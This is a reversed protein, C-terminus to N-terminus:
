QGPLITKPSIMLCSEKWSQTPDRSRSREITLIACVDPRDLAGVKLKRKEMVVNLDKGRTGKPLDVNVTVTALDQSWRYPLEAQEKEEKEKAIKDHATREEETMDDYKKDMKGRIYDNDILCARVHIVLPPQNADRFWFQSSSGGDQDVPM